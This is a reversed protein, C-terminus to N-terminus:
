GSNGGRNGRAESDIDDVVFHDEPDLDNPPPGDALAAEPVAVSEPEFAPRPEVDGGPVMEETEPDDEFHEPEDEFHEPEDDGYEDEDPETVDVEADSVPAVKPRRVRRSIGGSMAVTLAGVGAFWVFVGPAFTTQDVGVDGFNGLAGGGAFGLLAMTAAAVAAAVVV